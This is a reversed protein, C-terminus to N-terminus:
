ASGPVLERAGDSDPPASSPLAAGKPSAAGSEASAAAAVQAEHESHLRLEELGATKERALLLLLDNAARPSASYLAVARRSLEGLVAVLTRTERADAIATAAHARKIAACIKQVEMLIEADFKWAHVDDCVTIEVDGATAVAESETEDALLESVAMMEDIKADVIDLIRRLQPRLRPNMPIGPVLVQEKMLDLRALDDQVARFSMATESVMGQVLKRAEILDRARLKPPLPAPKRAQRQPFREHVWRWEEGLIVELEGAIAMDAYGPRDKVTQVRGLVEFLGSEPEEGSLIIRRLRDLSECIKRVEEHLDPELNYTDLKKCINDRQSPMMDGGNDIDGEALRREALAELAHSKEKVQTLLDRIMAHTAPDSGTIMTAVHDKCWALRGMHCRVASLTLNDFVQIKRVVRIAENLGKARLVPDLQPNVIADDAVWGKLPVSANSDTGNYVAPQAVSPAVPAPTITAATATTAARTKPRGVLRKSVWRKEEGLLAGISRTILPVAYDPKSKLSNLRGAVEFMAMEENGGLAVADRVADLAACLGKIDERFTAEVQLRDIAKCIFSRMSPPTSGGDDAEGKAAKKTALESLEDSKLRIDRLLDRVTQRSHADRHSGVELVKARLVELRDIIDRISSLRVKRADKVNVSDVWEQAVRLERDRVARELNDPMVRAASYALESGAIGDL